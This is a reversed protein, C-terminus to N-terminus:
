RSGKYHSIVDNVTVIRVPSKQLLAMQQDLRKPDLGYKSPGDDAQHYTLVLWGNNAITFDVLEQLEKLTTDRKVTMGIINIQNFDGATNVDADTVGNSSDGNTNRQSVYIKQIAQLTNANASGYPSAFSTVKGIHAEMTQKCGTLQRLLEKNDLLQLDPHDITHCGIEHGQRQIAKIQRWDLYLPDNEVGSLLYQTTRIGRKQLIPMADTYTTEFGDDFTVSILPQQFLRPPQGTADIQRTQFAPLPTSKHYKEAHLRTFQFVSFLPIGVVVLCALGTALHRRM